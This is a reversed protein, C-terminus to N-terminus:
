LSQVTKTVNKNNGTNLHPVNILVKGTNITIDLMGTQKLVGNVSIGMGAYTVFETYISKPM